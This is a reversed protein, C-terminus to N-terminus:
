ANRALAVATVTLSVPVVPATDFGLIPDRGGGCAALAGLLIAALWPRVSTLRNMNRERNLHSVCRCSQARCRYPLTRGCASRMQACACKAARLPAISVFRR